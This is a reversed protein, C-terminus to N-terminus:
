AAQVEGTVSNRFEVTCKDNVHCERQGIPIMQGRPQWGLADQQVCTACHEAQSLISREQDFGVNGVDASRVAVYTLRGATVYQRARSTLAQGLSAEGRAIEQTWDELFSYQDRVIQGVRGYDEQTMMGRGGKALTASGLHVHKIVDMMEVRWAELSIRGARVDGALKDTLQNIAFLDKELAKMAQGSPVFRGHTDRYRRAAVDFSYSSAM